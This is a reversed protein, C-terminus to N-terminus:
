MVFAKIREEITTNCIPCKEVQFSCSECIAQHKCPLLIVGIDRDFCVKCIRFDKKKADIEAKYQNVSGELKGLQEMELCGLDKPFDHVAALKKQLREVEKRLESVEDSEAMPSAPNDANQSQSQPQGAANKVIRLRRTPERLTRASALQERDVGAEVLCPVLEAYKAELAEFTPMNAAPCTSLFEQYEQESINSNSISNLQITTTDSEANAVYLDLYLSSMDRQGYMTDYSAGQRTGSITAVRYTQHGTDELLVRVYCGILKSTLMHSFYRTQLKVIHTRTLRLQNLQELTAVKKEAM